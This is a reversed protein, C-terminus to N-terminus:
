HLNDKSQKPEYIKLIEKLVNEGVAQMM